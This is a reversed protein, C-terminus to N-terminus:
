KAKRRRGFNGESGDTKWDDSYYPESPNPMVLLRVHDGECVYGPFDDILLDIELKKCLISKCQEGHNEYDASHVQEVPIFDLGNMALMKLINEKPHMDSIIHVKVTSDFARIMTIFVNPYKSLVGGIDFAINM